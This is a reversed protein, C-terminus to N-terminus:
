NGAMTLYKSDIKYGSKRSSIIIKEGMFELKERLYHIYVNLIGAAQDEGWVRLILEERSVFEGKAEVLVSLLSFEVDTLRQTKGYIHACKEGLTLPSSTKTKEKESLAAFLMEPSFPLPLNGESGLTVAYSEIESPLPMDNISWVVVDASLEAKKPSFIDCLTVEYEDSLLLFIKRGLYKDSCFVSLSKKM